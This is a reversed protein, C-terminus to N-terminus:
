DAELQQTQRLRRVRLTESERNLMHQILADKQEPKMGQFEVAVGFPTDAPANEPSDTQRVVRCFTEIYSNDAVFLLRLALKKGPALIESACFTMGVASVECTQAPTRVLSTKSERLAPYQEILVNIKQNMLALCEAVHGSLSQLVYLKEAFRAELDMLRSRTGEAVGQAMRHEELGNAFAEETIVEYKLHVRELIRFARRKEHGQKM